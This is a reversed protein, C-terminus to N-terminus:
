PFQFAVFVLGFKLHSNPIGVPDQLGFHIKVVKGPHQHLAAGMPNQQSHLERFAPSSIGERSSEHVSDWFELISPVRLSMGNGARGPAGEVVGPQEWGRSVELSPVDVTERPFSSWHRVGGVALFEKWMNIGM